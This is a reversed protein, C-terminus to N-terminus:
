ARRLRIRDLKNLFSLFFDRGKAFRLTNIVARVFEDTIWTIYVGTLSLGAPFIMIYSM